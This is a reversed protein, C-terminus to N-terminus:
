RFRREIQVAAGGLERAALTISDGAARITIAVQPKGRPGPPIGTVAFEGLAHAESVTDATGRYLLLSIEAQDDAATSFTNTAECPLHCGLELLPTFVGGLTEIGIAQVLEGEGIAPSASEVEVTASGAACATLVVLISAATRKM